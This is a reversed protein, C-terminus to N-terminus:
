GFTFSKLPGALAGANGIEIPASVTSTAVAPTLMEIAVGERVGPREPLLLVDRGWMERGGVVATYFVAYGYVGNVKAMGEGQLVFDAFRERLLSIYGAAYVPLEGTLEGSYPPLKLPDVSYSYKLAGDSSHSQVKVYGGRDPAVRYLGRYSFSFPVSGGHSYTTSQLTLAAAALLAILAIGAGGATWHVPRSAARWRPALLQGLTPGYEPKMRVAAM